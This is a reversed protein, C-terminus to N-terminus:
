VEAHTLVSLPFQLLEAPLWLEKCPIPFDLTKEEEKLGSKMNDSHVFNPFFTSVTPPEWSLVAYTLSIVM